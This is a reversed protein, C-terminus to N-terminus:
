NFEDGSLKQDKVNMKKLFQALSLNTLMYSCRFEICDYMTCKLVKRSETAFVEDPEFDYLGKLFQFEYSLNHVYVVMYCTDQLYERFKDIMEFFEDWTRGVITTDLDFQLAWIYMVSQDIEKIRTSEIDFATVVDLYSKSGKKRKNREIIKYSALRVYDFQRVSITKSLTDM